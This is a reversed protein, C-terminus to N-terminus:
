CLDAVYRTLAFTLRRDLDSDETSRMARLEAVAYDEPHLGDEFANELTRLAADISEPTAWAPRFQRLTYVQKTSHWLSQSHEDGPVFPPVPDVQITTTGGSQPPRPPAVPSWCGTALFM